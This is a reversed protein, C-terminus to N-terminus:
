CHTDQWSISGGSNPDMTLAAGELMTDIAFLTAESMTDMTPAAGELMKDMAM